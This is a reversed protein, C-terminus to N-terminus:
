VFDFEEEFALSERLRLFSSNCTFSQKLKESTSAVRNISLVLANHSTELSLILLVILNRSPFFTVVFVIM